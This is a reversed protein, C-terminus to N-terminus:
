HDKAKEAIYTEYAAADMLSAVEKSDSLRIKVLWAAGHPDSAPVFVALRVIVSLEGM